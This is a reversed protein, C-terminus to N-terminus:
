IDDPGLWRFSTVVFRRGFGPLAEPTRQVMAECWAVSEIRSPDAPNVAEGYARIRFTDSRTTLLPGLVAMIQTADPSSGAPFITALYDAFGNVSTFPGGAAKGATAAPFNNGLQIGRATVNAVPVVGPQANYTDLLSRWILTSPTNVNILGSQYGVGAATRATLTVYHFCDQLVSPTVSPLLGLQEYSLMAPMRSSNGDAAAKLKL